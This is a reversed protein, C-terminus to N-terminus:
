GCVSLDENYQILKKQMIAASSKFGAFTMGGSILGGLVPVAKSLFKTVGKKTLDEGLKAAIKEVLAFCATKMLYEIIEKSSKEWVNALIKQVVMDAGNVGLMFALCLLTSSKRYEDSQVTEEYFNIGYLYALKQSLVIYYGLNQLIDPAAAALGVPGGPLGALFSLGTTQWVSNKIVKDAIFTVENIGVAKVPNEIFDKQQDQSFNPKYKFLIERLFKERDVRTAPNDVATLVLSNIDM